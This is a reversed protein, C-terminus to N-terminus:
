KDYGEMSVSVLNGAGAQANLYESAGLVVKIRLPEGTAPLEYQYVKTGANAITASAANAAITVTTATGRAVATVIYTGGNAGAQGVETASTTTLDVSSTNITAM